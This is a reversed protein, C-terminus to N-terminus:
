KPLHKRITPLQGRLAKDPLAPVLKNLFIFVSEKLGLTKEWKSNQLFRMLEVAVLEPADEATKLERNLANVAASNISTVTARPSFHRVDISTDRLERRLAQTFGRLGAKSACYAAFGPFGIQGFVSGVNIIQAHPATSLLPILRRSLLMPALLNTELMSRIQESSQSPFAHFDSIGANNILVNIGGLRRALTEIAQLTEDQLLDGHVIHVNQGGLEESLTQLAARNRGVLILLKCQGHLARAIAKGIGGSAGTLMASYTKNMVQEGM